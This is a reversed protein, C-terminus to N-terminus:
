FEAQPVVVPKYICKVRGEGPSAASPQTQILKVAEGIVMLNRIVADGSRTTKPSAKM